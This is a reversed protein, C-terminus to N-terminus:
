AHDRYAGDHSQWRSPQRQTSRLATMLQHHPALRLAYGDSVESILVKGLIMNCGSCHLRMGHLHYPDDTRIVFSDGCLCRFMCRYVVVEAAMAPM